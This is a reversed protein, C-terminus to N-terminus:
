NKNTSVDILCAMTTLVRSVIDLDYDYPGAPNVMVRTTDLRTHALFPALRRLRRCPTGRRARGM